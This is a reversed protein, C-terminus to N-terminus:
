FRYPYRVTVARGPGDLGWSLGRHQQDFVHSLDAWLSSREGMRYRGRIGV